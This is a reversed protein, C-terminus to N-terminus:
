LTPLASEGTDSEEGDTNAEFEDKRTEGGNNLSRLGAARVITDIALCHSETHSFQDARATSVGGFYRGDSTSHRNHDPDFCLPDTCAHRSSRELLASGTEQREMPRRANHMQIPTDMHWVNRPDPEDVM